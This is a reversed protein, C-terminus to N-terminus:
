TLGAKPKPLTVMAPHLKVDVVSPFPSTVVVKGVNGGSKLLQFADHVGSISFETAPLGHVIRCSLRASLMRLLGNFWRLDNPVDTALDIVRPSAMGAASKM